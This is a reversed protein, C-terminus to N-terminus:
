WVQVSKGKDEKKTKGTVEFEKEVQKGSMKLLINAALVADHGYASTSNQMNQLVQATFDDGVANRSYLMSLGLMRVKSSPDQIMKNILANLAKDNARSDDETLRQVVEKAGMLRVEADQSNLYNELNKIYEDTLEVIKRKENKKGDKMETLTKNITALINANDGNGWQGTYYGSPYAGYSPANVNYVPAPAGPGFSMPNIIQFTVGADNPVAVKQGNAEVETYGQRAFAGPAYYPTNNQQVFPAGQPAQIFQAGQPVKPQIQANQM